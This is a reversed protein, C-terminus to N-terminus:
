PLRLGGNVVLVRVFGLSDVSRPTTDAVAAASDSVPVLKLGSSGAPGGLAPGQTPAAGAVVVPTGLSAGQQQSLATSPQLRLADPLIDLAGGVFSIAYNAHGLTGQTIAHRGYDEGAVRGLAGVLADGGILSGSSLQWSFGPDASGYLKSLSDATVTIARPTIGLTGNVATISYNSNSLGSASVAYSGVNEGATRSISGSLVDSGILSGSSLQWGLTPDANGYVKSGSDATVTIARPTISLSGPVATISYNSNSLSSASVAYSGVNEGAARSISGSLADNGVLSGSSLQWGLTPDANGYVKSGSDATVTIARPTISLSGPVATISYNGNSLGSASVAYSGVNEGATRSISGSLTDSGVLSGSSLQWGLTPDVNGYVKSGSDATVTIARPTISLSGPVATISYNSNSLSSASVAYSGVNEGATRSISGSLTDSGVLSGSSLQWGLTPDANGYVKSGSDATVTIARPTISLSGPVATISYNSNSLGSASVAYSGVNEGAARSISGSLTDSGVLSGSSLQWGLTPDANGYVKSGSDATVTIARPTIGLTGNVATISYNSNSLGAASVAYSGVNEGAARSLSGSLVDSGYLSGGIVSYGLTPDASGYVKSGSNARVTIAAPNITLSGATNGSSALSYGSKLVQITINGYVGAASFGTVQSGNHVFVYDTGAVWSGYSSGFISSASWLNALSQESGNYSLPTGLVDLTYSVAPPQASPDSNGAVPQGYVPIATYRRLQPLSGSTDWIADSWNAIAAAKIEAPTKGYLARDRMNVNTNVATNYYSNTVTATSSWGPNGVLGGVTSMSCWGGSPCAVTGSAYSNIISSPGEFEGILGGVGSGGIVNVESISDSLVSYKHNGTLGGVRSSNSTVTGSAYVNVISANRFEGAIAGTTSGGTINVNLLRLNAVQPVDTPRDWSVWGFTGGSPDNLGIFGVFSDSPRNIYLNSISHGLGDFRGPFTSMGTGGLPMFGAGGNWGTTAGADIDAGLVYNGGVRGNIGQLTGDDLSSATGLATIVTWAVETGDTGLKTYFHNGASLSVVAGGNIHVRSPNVASNSNNIAGQGYYLKLTGQSASVNANIHIDRFANLTLANASSWNLADNVLIDGGTGGAGQASLITVNNSALASNLQAGTIDGGSAAIVYDTPDILWTGTRGSAAQTSVVASDAIKVKAASTEIFGGDGGQPASADLRGGLQLSGRAMDGMLWIEGRQGSALSRAETIGSHNIAASALDGAAKATLYVLGGDARIAGSHDIRAQLAGEDIEIAVPGGLDVRVRQGAGMLVRGQPAEIQGANEVRAAVLAVSGGPAAQLLGQNVVSQTSNGSLAYRGDLFDALEMNLTSALLGGVQVQAGPTFLIGNPNLLFVQGNAQLRGQLVSAESGLVRNLAVSQASPQVFQVTHGAGVSFSQWDLALRASTQQVTLTQGQRGISASGAVVQGGEPLPAAAQALGTAMLLASLVQLRFPAAPQPLANTQGPDRQPARCHTM